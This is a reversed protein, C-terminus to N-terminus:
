WGPATCGMATPSGPRRGTVVLVRCAVWGRHANSGAIEGGGAISSAKSVLEDVDVAACRNGGHPGQKDLPVRGQPVHQTLAAEGQVLVKDDVGIDDDIVFGGVTASM